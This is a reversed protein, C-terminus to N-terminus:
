NALYNSTAGDKTAQSKKEPSICECQMTRQNCKHSENGKCFDCDSDVNCVAMAGADRKATNKNDSKLCECRFTQQNCHHEAHHACLPCDSDSNCLSPAGNLAWSSCLLLFTAFLKKLM